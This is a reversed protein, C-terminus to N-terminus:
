MQIAKKREHVLVTHRKLSQKLKFKADCSICQFPRKEEHVTAHSKLKCKLSFSAYCISCKFPKKKSHASMEHNYIGQKSAAYFECLNCKYPKKGEHVADTHRKLCHKFKFKANCLNCQFPRKKDHVSFTHRELYVERGFKLGCAECKFPKEHSSTELNCKFPTKEEHVTDIHRKLNHKVTFGANCVGCKIPRKGEHTPQPETHVELDKKSQFSFDSTKHKFLKKGEHVLAIHKKLNTTARFSTNCIKCKFSRNGELINKKKEDIPIHFEKELDDFKYPKEEEHIPSTQNIQSEKNTSKKTKFPIVIPDNMIVINAEANPSTELNLNTKLKEFVNMPLVAKSHDSNAGDFNGYSEPSKERDKNSITGELSEKSSELNSRANSEIEIDELISSNTDCNIENHVFNNTKRIYANTQFSITGSNVGTIFEHKIGETIFDDRNFEKYNGDNLILKEPFGFITILNDLTKYVDVNYFIIGSYLFKVLQELEDKPCPCLIEMMGCCNDKFSILFKRMKETQSLVERHIRFGHGDASYLVCDAEKNNFFLWNWDKYDNEDFIQEESKLIVM